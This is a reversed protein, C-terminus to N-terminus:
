RRRDPGRRRCWSPMGTRDGDSKESGYWPVQGDCLVQGCGDMLRHGRLPPRGQEARGRVQDAAANVRQAAQNLEAMAVGVTEGPDLTGDMTDTRLGDSQSPLDGLGQVIQRLQHAM